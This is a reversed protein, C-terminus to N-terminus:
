NIKEKRLFKVMLKESLKDPEGHWVINNEDDILVTRPLAMTGKYEIRLSKHTTKTQDSVVISEFKLKELTNLAEEPPEYTFSLFVINHNQFKKQLRNLHPVAKLCPKCWTAWFEVVKFKNNFNTDAPMNQLYDTITLQKAKTGILESQVKSLYFQAFLLSSIFLGLLFLAKKM